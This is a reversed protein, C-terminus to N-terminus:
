RIPRAKTALWAPGIIPYSFLLALIFTVVPIANTTASALAASTYKLAVGYLNLTATIGFLSVMFIKILTTFSLHPSTKRELFFAIPALFLAASAQRYVVFVATNMGDDFAFKTLLYM